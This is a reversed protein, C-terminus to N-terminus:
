QCDVTFVINQSLNTGMLDGSNDAGIIACNGAGSTPGDISVTYNSGQLLQGIGVSGNASIPTLNQTVTGEKLRLSFSEFAPLNVVNATFTYAPIPVSITFEQPDSLDVGPTGGTDRMEVQITATGYNGNVLSFTLKGSMSDIQVNIGGVDSSIIGNPDGNTPISVIYESVSQANDDFSNGMDTSAIFDDINLAETNVTDNCSIAGTLSDVSTNICSFVFSPKDNIPNITVSFQQTTTTIGDSAQIEILMPSNNGNSDQTNADAAPVLQITRNAGNVGVVINSPNNPIISPSLSVATVVIDSDNMNPDSVQFEVVQSSTDEDFAQMSSFTISPPTNLTTDITKFTFNNDSITDSVNSVFAAALLDIAAGVTGNPVEVTRSVYVILQDGPEIIANQLSVFDNGAAQFGCTTTTTAISVVNCSWDFGAVGSFSPQNADLKYYEEMDAILDINSNNEIVYQYEFLQQDAALIQNSFPNGDADFISIQLDNEATEFGHEYLLERHLGTKSACQISKDTVFNIRGNVLDYSTSLVGNDLTPILINNGDRINMIISEDTSTLSACVFPDLVQFDVTKPTSQYDYVVNGAISLNESGNITVDLANAMGIFSFQGIILFNILKRKLTHQKFFTNKM